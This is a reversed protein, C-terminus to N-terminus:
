AGAAEMRAVHRLGRRLLTYFEDLQWACREVVPYYDVMPQMDYHGRCHGLTLYLVQGEGRPAIYFVPHSKHAWAEEVFGTAPGEWDTHLLVEMEGHTEVLYIEDDSEFPEIGAVLPHDPKTVDIRFPQIPPHAIFQSGLTEMFHPAWRPAGVRGDGMFRLISNTGHLAFWRGGGELWGRLAEQDSLAPVVDCTYSVLFDCALIAEMNSYDEFVRTRIHPHEALLKLLELRAFDMDHFLGGVVLVCDLRKPHDPVADPDGAM